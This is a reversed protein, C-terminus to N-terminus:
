RNGREMCLHPSWHLAGPFPGRCCFGTCDRESLGQESAAFNFACCFLCLNSNVLACSRYASSKCACLKWHAGDCFYSKHDQLFMLVSLTHSYNYGEGVCLMLVICTSYIFYRSIMIVLTILCVVVWIYVPIRTVSDVNVSLSNNSLDNGCYDTNNLSGSIGSGSQWEGGGGGSGSLPVPVPGTIRNSLPLLIIAVAFM